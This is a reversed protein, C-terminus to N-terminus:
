IWKILYFFFVFLCLLQVPVFCVCESFMDFKHRCMVSYLLIVVYVVYVRLFLFFSHVSIVCQRRLSSCPCFRMVVWLRLLRMSSKDEQEKTINKQEEKKNTKKQKRKRHNNKNKRYIQIKTNKPTHKKETKQKKRRKRRLRRRGLIRSKEEGTGYHRQHLVFLTLATSIVRLVLLKLPRGALRSVTSGRFLAYGLIRSNHIRKFSHESLTQAHRRRRRTHRQQEDNTKQKKADEGYKEEEIELTDKPIM